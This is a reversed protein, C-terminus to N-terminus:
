PNMEDRGRARRFPDEVLETDLERALAAEDGYTKVRHRSKVVQEEVLTHTATVPTGQM